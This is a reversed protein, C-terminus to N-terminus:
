RARRAADGRHGHVVERDSGIQFLTDPTVEVQTDLNTVGATATHLDNEHLVALTAGPIDHERILATLWADWNESDM